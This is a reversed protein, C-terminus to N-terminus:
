LVCEAENFVHLACNKGCASKKKLGCTFIDGNGRIFSAQEYEDCM